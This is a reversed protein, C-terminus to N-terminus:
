TAKLAPTQARHEELFKRSLALIKEKEEPRFWHVDEERKFWSLQRKAYRRTDRKMLRVAEEFPVEGKLYAILHRYGISRLPKLEPSYGRALLGKVEELFGAELMKDVRANLRAYLEARPLTLGIKLCPYRRKKFAHERALASFTKGTAYYVELARLIRVRDRPSIKEAAEPDIRRLEQYLPFLGEEELRKKLKERIEGVEGVEFLGHLLARLYLGTGGALIPQKGRRHLERIAQDALEVFRAANFEEELELIGLLHHPARALEEPSPKAAGIQLHKYVQVSDFNIVEGGLHEALFVAVETKGVGTPGVVAILPIPNEFKEALGEASKRM